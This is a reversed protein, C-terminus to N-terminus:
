CKSNFDSPRQSALIVGVGYKSAERVFRYLLSCYALKHGESFDKIRKRICLVM